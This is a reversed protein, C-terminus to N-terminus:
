KSVEPQGLKCMNNKVDLWGDWCEPVTANRFHVLEGSHWSLCYDMIIQYADKLPEGNESRPWTSHQYTVIDELTENNHPVKFNYFLDSKLNNAELTIYKLKSKFQYKETLGHKSYQLQFVRERILKQMNEILSRNNTYLDSLYLIPDSQRHAIHHFSLSISIKKWFEEEWHWTYMCSATLPDFVVPICGQLISDFLGKRTMLDGTPQFCFISKQSILLPNYGEVLFSYRTGNLGYSSHVCLNPHLNCYHIISSRLRKSPRYFSKESGIYSTLIPRDMSEWPFPKKVEHSWHFDAPFPAAHWNDGRSKIGSDTAYMYSYDDIAFKTCNGCTLSLLSKCKPKLVYDNMAYNMGVILLHDKGKNRHYWTSNLLLTEVKPALPCKRFDYCAGESKDCRKYFASDVSFDYPIFFTTAKSPDLTRKPDTLARYYVMSFLQYQDTHFEGRSANVLPGLGNNLQHELMENRDRPYIAAKAIDAWEGDEYIYFLNESLCYRSFSLLILFFRIIM